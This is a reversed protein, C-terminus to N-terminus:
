RWLDRKLRAVDITVYSVVAEPKENYTVCWMGSGDRFVCITKVYHSAGRTPSIAFYDNMHTLLEDYSARKCAQVLEDTFPGIDAIGRYYGVIQKANLLRLDNATGAFPIDDGLEEIMPIDPVAVFGHEEIDHFSQILSVAAVEGGALGRRSFWDVADLFQRAIGKLAKANIGLHQFEGLIKVLTVQTADYKRHQGKGGGGNAPRLIDLRSWYDISQSDQGTKGQVQSRTYLQESTEM